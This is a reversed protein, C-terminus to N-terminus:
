YRTHPAPLDHFNYQLGIFGVFRETSMEDDLDTPNGFIYEMESRISLQRTVYLNLGVGVGVGVGSDERSARVRTGSANTGDLEVEQDVWAPGAKGFLEVHELEQLYYNGVPLFGVVYAAAGREHLEFTDGSDSRGESLDGNAEGYDTLALEFAVNRNVRKGVYGRYSVVNDQFDIRENSLNVDDDFGDVKVNTLGIAGGTYWGHEQASVTLPYVFFAFVTFAILLTLTRNM